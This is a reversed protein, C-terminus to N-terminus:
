HYVEWEIEAEEIWITRNFGIRCIPVKAKHTVNGDTDRRHIMVYLNEDPDGLAQILGSLLERMTM